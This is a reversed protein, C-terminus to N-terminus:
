TMGLFASLSTELLEECQGSRWLGDETDRGLHLRFWESSVLSVLSGGASGDGSVFRKEYEAEQGTSVGLLFGVGREGGERGV